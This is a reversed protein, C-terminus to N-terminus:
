NGAWLTGVLHLHELNVLKQVASSEFLHSIGEDWLREGVYLVRLSPLALSAILKPLQRM